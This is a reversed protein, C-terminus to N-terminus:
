LLLFNRLIRLGDKHSREPHPQIGLINDKSVISPFECIYECNAIVYESNCSAHYSHVFYLYFGDDLGNLLSHQKTVFNRNWGIHPIKLGGFYKNPNDLRDQWACVNDGIDFSSDLRTSDSVFVDNNSCLVNPMDMLNIAKNDPSNNGFYVIDGEILGLGNHIGFEYSRDFLLQMGLCIGMLYKGSAVFKLIASDLGNVVLNDMASKFSGVGPLILKDCQLIDEITTARKIRYEPTAVYELARLANAINCVNYDLVGLIM